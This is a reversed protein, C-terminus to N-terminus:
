SGHLSVGPSRALFECSSWSVEWLLHHPCWGILGVQVVALNNFATARLKRISPTTKLFHTHNAFNWCVSSGRSFDQSRGQRTRLELSAGQDIIIGAMVGAFWLCILQQLLPHPQTRHANNRTQQVTTKNQSKCMSSAKWSAELQLSIFLFSGGRCSHGQQRCSTLPHETEMLVSIKPTSFNSATLQDSPFFPPEDSSSRVGGLDAVPVQPFEVAQQKTVLGPLRSSGGGKNLLGTAGGGGGGGGVCGRSSAQEAHEPTPPSLQYTETLTNSYWLWHYM